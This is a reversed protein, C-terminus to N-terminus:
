DRLAMSFSGFRNPAVNQEFRRVTEGIVAVRTPIASQMKWNVRDQAEAARDPALLTATLLGATVAIKSVKVANM